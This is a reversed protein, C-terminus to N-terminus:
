TKVSKTKWTLRFPCTGPTILNCADTLAEGNPCKDDDLDTPTDTSYKVWCGEPIDIGDALDLEFVGNGANSM